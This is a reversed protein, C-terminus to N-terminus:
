QRPYFGLTAVDQHGGGGGGPSPSRPPTAVQRYYEEVERESNSIMEELLRREEAADLQQPVEDRYGGIAATSKGRQLGRAPAPAAAAPAPASAPPPPPMGAAGFLGSGAGSAASDPTRQWPPIEDGEDLADVDVVLSMDVEQAQDELGGGLRKLQTHLLNISHHRPFKCNVRTGASSGKYDKCPGMVTGIDGSAVAGASGAYAVLSMVRDGAMLGGALKAPPTPTLMNSRSPSSSKFLEPAGEFGPPSPPTAAQPSPQSFPNPLGASSMLLPTKPAPPQSTTGSAGSPSSLQSQDSHAPRQTGGIDSIRRAWRRNDGRATCRLSIWGHPYVIRGRVRKDEWVHLVEVVDVCMGVKLEATTPGGLAASSGVATFDKIIEYRGPTDVDDPHLEEHPVDENHDRSSSEEIGEAVPELPMPLEGDAAFPLSPDFGGPAKKSSVPRQAVESRGGGAENAGSRNLLRRLRMRCLICICVLVCLLLAVVATIGGTSAMAEALADSHSDELPEPPTTTGATSTSTLTATATATATSSTATETRTVMAVAAAFNSVQLNGTTVTDIGPTTTLGSVLSDSIKTAETAAQSQLSAARTASLDPVTADAVVSGESLAVAVDGAEVGSLGSAVALAVTGSVSALLTANASLVAFDINEIVMSVELRSLEEDGSDDM